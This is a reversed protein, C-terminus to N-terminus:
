TSRKAKDDYSEYNKLICQDFCIIECYVCRRKLVIAIGVCLCFISVNCQFYINIIKIKLKTMYERLTLLRSM